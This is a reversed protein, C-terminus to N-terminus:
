LEYKHHRDCFNGHNLDVPHSDRSPLLPKLRLKLRFDAGALTDNGRETQSHLGHREADRFAPANWSSNGRRGHSGQAFGPGKLVFFGKANNTRIMADGLADIQERIIRKQARTASLEISHDIKLLLLGKKFKARYGKNLGSFLVQYAEQERNNIELFTVLHLHADIDYPNLHLCRRYNDVM